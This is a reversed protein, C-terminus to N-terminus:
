GGLEFVITSYQVDVVLHHGFQLLSHGLQRVLDKRALSRPRVLALMAVAVKM